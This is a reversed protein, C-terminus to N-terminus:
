SVVGASPAAGVVVSSTAEGLGGPEEYRHLCQVQHATVGLVLWTRQGVPGVEVTVVRQQPGVAVASGVRLAPGAAGPLQGRRQVWRVGWPLLALLVVFFVVTLLADTM